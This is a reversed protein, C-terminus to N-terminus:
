PIGFRRSLGAGSTDRTSPARQHPEVPRDRCPRLAPTRLPWKAPGGGTDPQYAPHDTSRYARPPPARPPPLTERGPPGAPPAPRPPRAAATARLGKVIDAREGREMRRLTEAHGYRPRGPIWGCVGVGKCIRRGAMDELVVVELQLRLIRDVVVFLHRAVQGRE